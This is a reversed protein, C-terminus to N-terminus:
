LRERRQSLEVDIEYSIRSSIMGRKKHETTTNTIIVPHVEDTVVNHLYVTNSQLLYWMRDSEEEKLWGTNLKYKKIIESLYRRKGFEWTTNNYNQNFTYQQVEDSEVVKGKIPLWDYGGWPNLYYLVYQVNCDNVVPYKVGNVTYSVAGYRKNTYPFLQTNVNNRVTITKSWDTISNGYEDKLGKEYQVACNVSVADAAGFITFPLYQNKVVSKDNLIPRSLIGTKFDKYSWDNIFCYTKYTINGDASKLKFINYGGDVGETERELFPVNLYNLCLKNVLITNSDSSPRKNTRGKFILTDNDAFTGNGMDIKETKYITYELKNIEGFNYVIDKWIPGVYEGGEVPIEPEYIDEPTAGQQINVTVTKSSGDNLISAFVVSGNRVSLSRNQSVTIPYKVRMATATESIVEPFGITIWDETTTGTTTRLNGTYTVYVFDNKSAKGLYNYNLNTTDVSITAEVVEGGGGSIDSTQEIIIYDSCLVEGNVELDTHCYIQRTEGLNADIDIYKFNMLSNYGDGGLFVDDGETLRAFGGEVLYTNKTGAYPYNCKLVVRQANANITIKKVNGGDSIYPVSNDTSLQLGFPYKCATQVLAVVYDEQRSTRPNIYSLVLQDTLNFSYPNPRKPAIEYDVGYGYGTNGGSHKKIEFYDYDVSENDIEMLSTADGYVVQITDSMSDDTAGFVLPNSGSFEINNEGNQIIEIIASGKTDDELTYNFSVEGRRTTVYTNNQVSVYFTYAWGATGGNNGQQYFSTLWKESTALNSFSKVKKGNGWLNGDVSITFSLSDGTHQAVLQGEYVYIAM